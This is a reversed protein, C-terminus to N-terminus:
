WCSRHKKLLHCTFNTEIVPSRRLVNEAKRVVRKEFEVWRLWLEKVRFKKEMICEKCHELNAQMYIVKEFVANAIVLIWQFCHELFSRYKRSCTECSPFPCPFKTHSIKECIDSIALSSLSMTDFPLSSFTVTFWLAKISLSRARYLPSCVTKLYYNRILKHILSSIWFASSALAVWTRTFIEFTLWALLCPVTTMWFLPIGNESASQSLSILIASPLVTM